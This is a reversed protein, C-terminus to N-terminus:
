RSALVRGLAEKFLGRLLRMKYGNHALPRAEEVLLEALRSADVDELRSGALEAEVRGARLPVPAVGGLAIRAERIESGQLDVYIAVGALAFAWAARAMAKAYVSRGHAQPPPLTIETLVAGDPLTVFNRRAEEPLAYL